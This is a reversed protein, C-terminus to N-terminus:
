KGLAHQDLRILSFSLDIPGHEAQVEVVVAPAYSSSRQLRAQEVARCEFVEREPVLSLLGVCLTEQLTEACELDITYFPAHGGIARFGVVQDRGLWVSVGRAREAGLRQGLEFLMPETDLDIRVVGILDDIGCRIPVSLEFWAGLLERK